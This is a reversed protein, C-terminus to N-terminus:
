REVGQVLLPVQSIARFTREEEWPPWWGQVLMDLPQWMVVWGAVILSESALTRLADPLWSLRGVATSAALSLGFFTVGVLFTRVGVWRLATLKRRSEAITHACYRAFARRVALQTQPTLKESPVLVRLRITKLQSVLHPLQALQAISGISDVEDSFPDFEHERFLDRVDDVKIRVENLRESPM